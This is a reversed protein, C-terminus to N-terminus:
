IKKFVMKFEKPIPASIEIDEGKNIDYFVLKSAHLGLRLIPNKTYGYKEDFVIPHGLDHMHVRIQNKRGTDIEVKLLSYEKNENIVKYRTIAKKGNPDKTSYVLNNANLKLYSKITGEKEELVGEVLAYYERVKVDENWHMKLKSHLKIDKAFLLVGSTEKDIRHLIYPRLKPNKNSLYKSVYYYASEIEKDSEISLLGARKNIAIYDDNEFIIDLKYNSDINNNKIIDVRNKLIKVEDDKALPFDFRTIVLGNVLVKHSSLISKVSNRSLPLKELLFELLFSSKNIKFIYTYELRKQRNDNKNM